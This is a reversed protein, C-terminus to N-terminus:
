VPQPITPDPSDARARGGGGGGNCYPCWPRYKSHVHQAFVDTVLYLLVAEQLIVYPVKHDSLLLYAAFLAAILTGTSVILARVPRGNLLHMVWLAPKLDEARKQPVLPMQAICEDCLHGLNHRFRTIWALLGFALMVAYVAAPIVETVTLPVIAITILLYAIVAHTGYHRHRKLAV